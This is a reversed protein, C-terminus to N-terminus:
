RGQVSGTQLQQMSTHTPVLSYLSAEYTFTEMLCVSRLDATILESELKNESRKCILIFHLPDVLIQESSKLWHESEEEDRFSLSLLHRM